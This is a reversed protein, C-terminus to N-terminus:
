VHKPHLSQFGDLVFVFKLMDKFWTLDARQMQLLHRGELRKIHVRNWGSAGPLTRSYNFCSYHELSGTGDGWGGYVFPYKFPCAAFTQTSKRWRCDTQAFMWRHLYQNLLVALIPQSNPPLVDRWLDLSQSSEPVPLALSLWLKWDSIRQSSVEHSFQALILPLTYLFGQVVGRFLHKSQALFHSSTLLLNILSRVPMKFCYNQVYLTPNQSFAKAM